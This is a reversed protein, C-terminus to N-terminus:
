NSQSITPPLHTGGGWVGLSSLAREQALVLESFQLTM